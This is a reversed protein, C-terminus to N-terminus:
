SSATKNSGSSDRTSFGSPGRCAVDTGEAPIAGQFFQQWELVPRVEDGNHRTADHSSTDEPEDEVAEIVAEAREITTRGVRLYRAHDRAHGQGEAV